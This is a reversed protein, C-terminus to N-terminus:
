SDLWTPTQRLNVKDGYDCLSKHLAWFRTVLVSYHHIANETFSLQRSLNIHLVRESDSDRGRNLAVAESDRPQYSTTEWRWASVRGFTVHM